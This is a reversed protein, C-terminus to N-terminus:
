SKPKSGGALESVDYPTVRLERAGLPPPVVLTSQPAPPMLSAAVNNAVTIVELEHESRSKDGLRKLLQSGFILSLAEGLFQLMDASFQAKAMPSHLWMLGIAGMTSLVNRAQRQMEPSLQM